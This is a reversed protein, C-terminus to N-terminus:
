LLLFTYIRTELVNLKRSCRAEMMYIDVHIKEPVQYYKMSLTSTLSTELYFNSFAQAYSPRSCNTLICNEVYATM